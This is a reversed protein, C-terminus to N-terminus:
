KRVRARRRVHRKSVTSYRRRFSHTRPVTADVSIPPDAPPRVRIRKEIFETTPRLAQCKKTKEDMYIFIYTCSNGNRDSSSEAATKPRRRESNTTNLLTKFLQRRLSLRRSVSFPVTPGYSGNLNGLFIALVNSTCEYYINKFCTKINKVFFFFFCKQNVDTPM